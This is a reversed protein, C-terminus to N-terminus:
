RTLRARNIVTNDTALETKEAATLDILTRQFKSTTDKQETREASALRAKIEAATGRVQVIDFNAYGTGTLGVHDDHIGVIDGVVSGKRVSGMAIIVIKAM